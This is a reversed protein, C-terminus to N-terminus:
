GSMVSDAMVVSADAFAADPPAGGFSTVAGWAGAAAHWDHWAVM